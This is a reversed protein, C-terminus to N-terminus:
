EDASLTRQYLVFGHPSMVLEDTAQVVDPMPAYSNNWEPDQTDLVKHWFHDNGEMRFPVSESAFNFLCLFDNREHWRQLAIIKGNIINVSLSKKDPNHLAAHTKRLRLLEKYWQFMSQHRGERQKQWQLKSQKFTEEAQPDPTEGLWAFSAFEAKRGNRVAEVLGPDTHSVFYLFPADEAYEEGMFLMPLYPSLIVTAAALQLAEFSVLKALREGLMRNGIQDHNQSCVVFREGSIGASSNGYKRKRHESYQGSHVFGEQLAKALHDISGYDAYYGAQENTLLTHLAHHFGDMWQSDFGYGGVERPKIVRVDDLDSEAILYFRRGKELSFQAVKETLYQWFHVAGADFVAHIADLRLADVHYHEMFFVASDAFFDRVADSHADDFNLAAGWPTHYKDVFYPGMEAVYNGEPGLHNYVMDLIVAIGRAHCEDVLRRLDDPSGYTNQVSYPHVGDYGWNRGGPFQSLPLLEIATIGLDRLYDLKGIVAAFTGEPTFTGVHLEYIIYDKLDVGGWNEDRWAYSQHNIVQSPGHVGQPQYHSAPDPRDDKGNFQYFYQTSPAIDDAEVRFYGQADKQMPILRDDPSIIHVAVTEVAPAWLTFTCHNNGTYQAGVTLAATQTAPQSM